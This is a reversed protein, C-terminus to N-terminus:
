EVSTLTTAMRVETECFRNCLRPILYYSTSLLLTLKGFFVQVCSLCCLQEQAPRHLWVPSFPFANASARFPSCGRPGIGEGAWLHRDIQKWKSAFQMKELYEKDICYM